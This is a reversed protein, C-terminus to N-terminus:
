QDGSDDENEIKSMQMNTWWQESITTGVIDPEITLRFESGYGKRGRSLTQGEVLGENKLEILLDSLRRYSLPYAVLNTLLEQNKQEGFERLDMLVEEYYRYIASTTYWSSKKGDDGLYSIKALAACLAKLHASAGKLIIVVRDRKLQQMAELLHTTQIKKEGRSSAIEGTLRLLEIARRADGHEESSAGAINALVIPQVSELFAESARDRLLEIIEITSYPEFYVEALGIRSKIRDDFGYNSMVNNSISIITVLHGKERLDQQMTVLKYVFDSASIYPDGFVVDFEDLVLVFLNTKQTKMQEEISNSIQTIALNLGQASKLQPKGLETLILNACGFITKARRLNVFRYSIGRISSKNPQEDEALSECVFKVITSKGSGSRGYVSILPVVHGKKYALFELFERIKGERGIIKSPYILTDLQSKDKFIM